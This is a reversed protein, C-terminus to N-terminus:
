GRRAGDRGQKYVPYHPCKHPTYQIIGREDTMLTAIVERTIIGGEPLGTLRTILEPRFATEQSLSAGLADMGAVAVVLTTSAPIVPETANPAKIPKRAAGDAENIIYDALGLAAIRDITEPSLGKLKGEEPRPCAATVHKHRGLEEKLRSILREEDEELLVCPSEDASPKMIHTTTTSIVKKGALSLEHALAFMLSTKGGGGM